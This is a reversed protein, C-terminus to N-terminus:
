NNLKLAVGYWVLTQIMGDRLATPAVMSSAEILRKPSLCSREIEGKRAPAYTVDLPNVLVSQVVDILDNVSSELGTSVHVVQVDHQATALWWLQDAVDVVYIFDRTQNGDGFVTFTAGSSAARGIISVVGGEGLVGQRPGYTNALVAAIVQPGGTSSFWRGYELGVSKSIGYPSLPVHAFDETIPLRDASVDGYLAATEALVVRGVGAARAASLVNVTGLVNRRADEVPDAISTVVDTQAALHIIVDPAYNVIADAGDSTAIDCTLIEVKEIVGIDDLLAPTSTSYDDLVLVQAGDLLAREVLHSGIFGAGGTIVVKTM